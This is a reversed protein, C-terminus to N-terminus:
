LLKGPNLFDCNLIQNVQKKYNHCKESEAVSISWLNQVNDQKGVKLGEICYALKDQQYREVEIVHWADFQSVVNCPTYGASTLLNGLLLPNWTYIHHNRDNTIKDFTQGPNAGDNKLGVILIGGPNLKSRLKRLECLPCDVHELVSTTYIVDFGLGEPIDELRLFVDKIDPFNALAFARSSPNIEVGYKNPIQMTNLIYGGSCGFELISSRSNQPLTSFLHTIVDGKVAAGFENLQKQWKWYTADYHDENKSIHKNNIIISNPTQYVSSDMTIFTFSFLMFLLVGIPLMNGKKFCIGGKEDRYTKSTIIAM